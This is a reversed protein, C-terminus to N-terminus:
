QNHLVLKIDFHGQADESGNLYISKECYSMQMAENSMTKDNILTRLEVGHDISYYDGRFHEPITCVGEATWM